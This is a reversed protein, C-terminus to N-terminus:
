WRRGRSAPRRGSGSGAISQTSFSWGSLEGSSGPHLHSRPRGASRVPLLVGSSPPPPSVRTFAPGAPGSAAPSARTNPLVFGGSGEQVAPISRLGLSVLRLQNRHDWTFISDLEKACQPVHPCISTARLQPCLLCGSRTRLGVRGGQPGAAVATPSGPRGRPQSTGCAEQVERCRVPESEQCGEVKYLQM